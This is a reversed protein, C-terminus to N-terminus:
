VKQFRLIYLSENKARRELVISSRLGYNATMKSIIEQPKNEYVAVLYFLGKPSLLDSVLPLLRNTVEMGDVGGAWAFYTPDEEMSKEEDKSSPVYPPNFLLLDVKGRMRSCLPSLLDAKMVDVFGRGRADRNNSVNKRHNRLFTQKTSEPALSNIDTCIFFM